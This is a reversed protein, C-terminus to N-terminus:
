GNCWADGRQQCTTEEQGEVDGAIDRPNVMQVFTVMIYDLWQLYNCETKMPAPQEVDWFCQFPIEPVSRSLCKSTNACQSLLQM